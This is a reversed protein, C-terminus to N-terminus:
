EKASTALRFGFTFHYSFAPNDKLRFAARTNDATNFWSGGRLVRKDSCNPGQPDNKPSTKYYNSRFCDNVWEWANGSMDYVGLGNPQKTGVRHPKGESNKDYWAVADLSNGGSYKELKGGSRAAYEWEAETPLRYHKTTRANLKAIFEQVDNWSVQDVPCNSGCSSYRSPNSGMIEQWQGQTVEYASIAFDSVCVEHLTKDEAAGMKYCGGKVPVFTLDAVSDVNKEAAVCASAQFLLAVAVPLAVLSVAKVIHMKVNM